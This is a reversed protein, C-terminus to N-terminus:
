GREAEDAAGVSAEASAEAATTTQATAARLQELQAIAKKSMASAGADVGFFEVGVRSM